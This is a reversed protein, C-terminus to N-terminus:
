EVFYVEILLYFEVFLVYNLLGLNIWNFSEVVM